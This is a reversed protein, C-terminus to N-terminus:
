DVLQVSVNTLYGDSLKGGIMQFPETGIDMLPGNFPGSGIIKVKVQKGNALNTVLLYHGTMGKYFSTVMGDYYGFNARGTIIGNAIIKDKKATVIEKSLLWRNSEVGNKYIVHYTKKLKGLSGEQIVKKQGFSVSADGRNITEFPIDEFSEIDAEKIRTIIITTGPTLLSSMEASIQDKPGIIFESKKIIESVLPNWIRIDKIVDDAKVYYVPARKIMIKQGAGGDIVPDMVLDTTIIDEPFVKINNQNLIENTDLTTSEVIMRKNDDWLVTHFTKTIDGKVWTNEKILFFSVILFLLCLIILTIKSKAIM